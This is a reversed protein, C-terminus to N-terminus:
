ETEGGAELLNGANEAGNEGGQVAEMCKTYAEGEHGEVDGADGGLSECPDPQIDSGDEDADPPELGPKYGTSEDADEEEEGEYEEGEDANTHTYIEPVPFDEEVEDEFTATM